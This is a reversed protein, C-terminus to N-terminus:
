SVRIEKTAKTPSSTKPLCMKLMGDEYKASIQDDKVNDPLRFSRSFSSCSYEQRTYEKNEEKNESKTEASITLVDDNVKIKFDEKHYGPAAMEIDYENDKEAVNVAPYTSRGTLWSNNFFNDTDFFDQYFPRTPGGSSKALNAM